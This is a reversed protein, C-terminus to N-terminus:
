ARNGLAATELAGLEDDTIPAGRRKRWREISRVLRAANASAIRARATDIRVRDVDLLFAKATGSGDTAVLINKLNLDPHHVGGRAMEALLAAAARVADARPVLPSAGGLVDALDASRPIERTAIDSRRLVRGSAYVVSAVVLPTAIGLETLRVSMALERPARTPALFQDGTIPALLGGHRSHRVVVTGAGGLPVVYVPARGQLVRVGPQRAAYAYLSESPLIERLAAVVEPIAVAQTGGIRLREYGAPLSPATRSRM